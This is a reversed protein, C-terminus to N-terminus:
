CRPGDRGLAELDAYADNRMEACIQLTGRYQKNHPDLALARQAYRLARDARRRQAKAQRILDDRDLSEEALEIWGGDATRKLRHGVGSQAALLDYLEALLNWARHHAKDLRVARIAYLRASRAEPKEPHLGIRHHLVALVYHAHARKWGRLKPLNALLWRIRRQIGLEYRVMGRRYEESGVGECRGAELEPDDFRTPMDAWTQWDEM